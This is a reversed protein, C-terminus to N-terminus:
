KCSIIKTERTLLDFLIKTRRTDCLQELADWEKPSIVGDGNLDANHGFRTLINMSLAMCIKIHMTPALTKLSLLLAVQDLLAPKDERTVLYFRTKTTMTEISALM